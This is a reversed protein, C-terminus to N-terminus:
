AQQLPHPAGRLVRGPSQRLAGGLGRLERWGTCIELSEGAALRRTLQERELEM